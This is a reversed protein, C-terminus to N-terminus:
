RGVFKLFVIKDEGANYFERIRAEQRYGNRLYFQRTRAFEPLCSTEVLLVRAGTDALREEIHLLLATGVGTSQREPAVAILLLNWTGVTMREAACYAVACPAGDDFTLWFENNSGALYPEVMPDLLESPFLGTGDIVARLFPLDARVVDRIPGSM